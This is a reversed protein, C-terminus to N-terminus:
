KLSESSRSFSYWLLLCGFIFFFLFFRQSKTFLGVFELQSDNRLYEFLFRFISYWIVFCSSIRAISFKKKKLMSYLLFSNLFLLLAGEFIMSLLNTNIRLFSDVNSYVHLIWFSKLLTILSESFWPNTFIIGYLEQNLYNWLRWLLIGFPVVVLICDFLIFFEKWSLKSFTKFLFSAIIVGITGGIFSMWWNWVTFISFWNGVFSGFDYIFVHGLRGWVLVGLLLFVILYDLNSTLAKQLAPYRKFYQKKGLFYLFCYGVVFAIFYFIGYWYVSFWFLQFAVMLLLPILVNM